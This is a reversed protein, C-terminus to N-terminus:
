SVGGAPLLWPSLRNWREIECGDRRQFRAWVRHGQVTGVVLAAQPGGYIAACVGGKPLPAFLRLGGASLHSCAAGPRKLTGVAPNCSLTWVERARSRARDPWYTITLRTSREAPTSTSGLHTVGSAGSAGGCSAALLALAVAAVAVRTKPRATAGSAIRTM